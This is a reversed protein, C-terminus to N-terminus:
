RGELPVEAYRNLGSGGQSGADYVFGYVDGGDDQTLVTGRVWQAEVGDVVREASQWMGSADSYTHFISGTGQEIFLVHVERGYSVADAGTQDSDVANQVVDRESVQVPESPAGHDVIRREWLKRTKLRYIVVATNTEPIYVLPLISGVDGEATGLGSALQERPTLTGDAQIRRYWATGDSGTYALHVVDDAGLVAQPGSLGPPVDADIVTEDGWTGNTARISYHIKEPGGYIGVMSGDSRVVLASVQTPPEAPTAVTDDRITWSDPNASHDSTNFTHHLVEDSTQHLMHIVGDSLDTAFGELDGTAPRNDPDVEQWSEGRDTSKMVMLVNFTEAPEMLFYLDGNSAEWPGIRGPTEVFTGALLRPPVSATIVANTGSTIPCGGADALRLGITDGEETAVPGDAFRRIVLPFEWESQVGGNAIAPTLEDLSIGAGSAYPLDSGSLLDPTEAGNEYASTSIISVRPTAEEPYPFDRAAVNMWAGDNHRYQLRFRRTEDAGPATELEFRVRFPEEVNVTVNENLDGAWGVNANLGADVDGRVRFASLRDTAPEAVATQDTVVVRQPGGCGSAAILLLAGILSLAGSVGSASAKRTVGAFCSPASSSSPSATWSLHHHTAPNM